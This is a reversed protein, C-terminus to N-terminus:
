QGASNRREQAKECKFDGCAIPFLQSWESFTGRTFKYLESGWSGTDEISMSELDFKDLEENNFNVLVFKQVDASISSLKPSTSLKCTAQVEDSSYTQSGTKLQKDPRGPRKGHDPSHKRKRHNVFITQPKNSPHWIDDWLDELEWSLNIHVRLLSLLPSYVGEYCSSWHTDAMNIWPLSILIESNKLIRETELSTTSQQMSDFLM